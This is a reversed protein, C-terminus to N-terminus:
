TAPRCRRGWGTTPTTPWRPHRRGRGRFPIVALVPGFIEERAIRMDNTVGAFLTPNVFNGSPWTAARATVAWWWGRAGEARGSEICGAVQGGPPRQDLAASTTGPRVPRRLHGHAAMAAAKDVMEDHITDQVLLGPTACAARAPCGWRCWAWPRWPWPTWTSTTSSSTRARAGSSSASAPRHREAAAHMMRTGVARRGPSAHDQRGAPATILAEGTPDPPGTVLNVVGDPM